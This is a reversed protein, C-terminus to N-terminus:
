LDRALRSALGTYTAPTLELLRHRVEDPLGLGAIFERLQEASVRRGQTLAKLQEYPNELGHRRMITQIAEGLVEWNLDLDQALREADPEIRELGKMVSTYAILSHALAV